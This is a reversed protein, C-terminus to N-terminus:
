LLKLNGTIKDIEEAWYPGIAICTNTPVNDFETFGADTILVTPIKADKAKQHLELLEQETECGVVVKVFRGNIWADWYSQEMYELVHAHLVDPGDSAGIRKLLHEMSNLVVGLSAHAAQAMMKGKTVKQGKSNRVDNRWVIVQKVKDM